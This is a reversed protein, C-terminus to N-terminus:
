FSCCASVASSQPFLAHGMTPTVPYRLYPFGESLSLSHSSAQADDAHARPCCFCTPICLGGCCCVCAQVRQAPQAASTQCCSTVTYAKQPHMTHVVQHKFRVLRRLRDAPAHRQLCCHVLLPMPAQLPPLPPTPSLYGEQHCNFM